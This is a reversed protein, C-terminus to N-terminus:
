QDQGTHKKRYEAVFCQFCKSNPYYYEDHKDCRVVDGKPLILEGNRDVRTLFGHSEGHKQNHGVLRNYAYVAEVPSWFQNVEDGDDRLSWRDIFDDTQSEPWEDWHKEYVKGDDGIGKLSQQSAPDGSFEGPVGTKTETITVIVEKLVTITAHDGDVNERWLCVKQGVKYLEKKKTEPMIGDSVM